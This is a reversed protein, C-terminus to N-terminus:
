VKGLKCLKQFENWTINPNKIKYEFYNKKVNEIKIKISNRIKNKEFDTHTKGKFYGKHGKLKESIKMLTEESLKKGIHSQRLKEKIENSHKKNYFPNKEGSNIERMYNKYESTHRHNQFLNGGDGGDAINYEAKGEARYSTIFVKELVNINEKTESIALISKSFNNMGYKHFAKNLAIGSGMYSDSVNVSKHQGIYTKGNINNKIEYIYYM